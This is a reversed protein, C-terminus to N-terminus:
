RTRAVSEAPLRLVAALKVHIMLLTGAITLLRPYRLPVAKVVWVEAAKLVVPADLRTAKTEVLVGHFPNGTAIPPTLSLTPFVQFTRVPGVVNTPPENVRTEAM